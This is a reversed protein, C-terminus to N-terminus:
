EDRRINWLERMTRIHESAYHKAEKKSAGKKRYKEVLTEVLINNWAQDFGSDPVETIISEHILHSFKQGPKGAALVVGRQHIIGDILSFHEQIIFNVAFFVVM